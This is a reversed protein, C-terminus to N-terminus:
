IYIINIYKYYLQAFKYRGWQEEESSHHNTLPIM